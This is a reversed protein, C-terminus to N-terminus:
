LLVYANDFAPLTPVIPPTSSKEDEVLLVYAKEVGKNAEEEEEKKKLDNNPDLVHVSRTGDGRLVPSLDLRHVSGDKLIVEVHCELPKRDRNFITHQIVEFPAYTRKVPQKRRLRPDFWFLCFDIEQQGEPEAVYWAFKHRKFWRGDKTKQAYADPIRTYTNGMVVVVGDTSTSSQGQEKGSDSRSPAIKEGTKKDNNKRKQKKKKKKKKKKESGSSDAQNQKQFTKDAKLKRSIELATDFNDFDYPKLGFSWM